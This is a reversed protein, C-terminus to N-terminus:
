KPKMVMKKVKKGLAAWQGKTSKAYIDEPRTKTERERKQRPTEPYSKRTKKKAEEIFTIFSKIAM